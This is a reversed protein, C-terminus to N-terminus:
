YNTKFFEIYRNLTDRNKIKDLNEKSMYFVRYAQTPVKMIKSLEPNIQEAYNKVETTTSFDGIYILQDEDLELLQHKLGAGTYNSRNFQGVGFRSSSMSTSIDSVAIVYYYLNSESKSFLNDMPKVTPKTETQAPIETNKVIEAPKTETKVPENTKSVLPKQEEVKVPLVIKPTITETKNEIQSATIAVKETSIKSLANEQSVIRPETSDFDILAIKRNKFTSLNANIYAIHDKVLPTILNDNPYKNVMSDLAALLYSVDNTHGIAIANLYDFQAQLKNEKFKPEIKSIQDIVSVFEKKEYSAFVENYIINIKVDLSNQKISFDPDLITKAYVTGPFKALVLNKYSESKETDTKSYVLYLSYYIADLHNNQPFRELLIEYIKIAEVEDALVQQYFSAIEFYADIIQQNSKNLKESTLPLKAQYAQISDSIATKNELSDTNNTGKPMQTQAILPSATKISQRWNDELIRNGWKKKFDTLGKALVITNNFYFTAKTQQEEKIKTKSNNATKNDVLSEKEAFMNEIKLLREQEPLSALLQLTDQEAITQFRNTLYELNEAKKAIAQYNPYNKPLTLAASDYYLKANVYNRLNKFNLDAIKLFSIGKQYQNNNSSKVSVKYFEEAKNYDGDELYDQAVEYYIKDIYDTHKDDKLLSLLQKKRNYSQDKLIDYIRIKSLKANFYMEFPANSNEVRTYNILAKDYEKEQEYLQGLIYPWRTRSEIKNTEKIALELYFIAKKFNGAYINMQALTALPEAKQSKVSDLLRNVTDLAKTAASYNEIQMLSRTKWNLAALVNKKDKKYARTIYDFFEIAIFYNGKYFNTKGLLMYAEDGYNSLSKDTIITQAKKTIEDLEPANTVTIGSGSLYNIPNPAIYIALYAEYNDKHTQALNEQYTNLLVNSNYIYNYRASLNQLSRNTANDKQTSCSLFSGIAFSLLIINIPYKILINM